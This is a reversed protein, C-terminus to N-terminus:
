KLKVFPIKIETIELSNPVFKVRHFKLDTWNWAHRPANYKLLFLDENFAFGVDFGFYNDEDLITSSTYKNSTGDAFTYENIAFIEKNLLGLQNSAYLVYLKSRNSISGILRADKIRADKKIEVEEFKTVNLKEDFLTFAIGIKANSYEKLTELSINQVKEPRFTNDSVLAFTGEPGVRIKYKDPLIYNAQSMIVQGTKDFIVLKYLRKIEKGKSITGLGGSGIDKYLQNSLTEYDYGMVMLLNGSLLRVCVPSYKSVSSPIPEFKKLSFKSSKQPLTYIKDNSKSLTYNEFHIYNTKDFTNELYSYILLQDANFISQGIIFRSYEVKGLSEEMVLKRTLYTYDTKVTKTNPNFSTLYLADDVFPYIYNENLLIHNFGINFSEQDQVAVNMLYDILATKSQASTVSPPTTEPIYSSLDVNTIGGQDFVDLKRSKSLFAISSIAKFGGIEYLKLNNPIDYLVIRNAGAILIYQNANVFKLYSYKESGLLEYFAINPEPGLSRTDYIKIWSDYKGQFVGYSLSAGYRGDDSKEKTIQANLQFVFLHFIIIIKFCSM